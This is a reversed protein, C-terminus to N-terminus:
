HQLNYMGRHQPKNQSFDICIYHIKPRIHHSSHQEKPSFYRQYFKWIQSIVHVWINPSNQDRTGQDRTGLYSLTESWTNGFLPSKQNYTGPVWIIHSKWRKKYTQQSPMSSPEKVLRDVLTRGAGRRGGPSRCLAQATYRFVDNSWANRLFFKKMIKLLFRFIFKLHESSPCKWSNRFFNCFLFKELNVPSIYFFPHYFRWFSLLTCPHDKKGHHSFNLIRCKLSFFSEIVNQLFWVSRPYIM